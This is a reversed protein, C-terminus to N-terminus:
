KSCVRLVAAKGNAVVARSICWSDGAGVSAGASESRGDVAELEASLADLKFLGRAGAVDKEAIAGKWESFEHGNRKVIWDAAAVAKSVMLEEHAQVGANGVAMTHAGAWVLLLALVIAAAVMADFAFVAGRRM